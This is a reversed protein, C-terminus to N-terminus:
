GSVGAREVFANLTAIPRMDEVTRARTDLLKETCVLYALCQARSIAVNLRHRSFLFGTGRTMDDGSSTTM